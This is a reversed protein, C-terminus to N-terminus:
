LYVYPSEGDAFNNDGDSNHTYLLKVRESTQQDYPAFELVYDSSPSFSLATSFSITNGNIASIKTVGVDSFDPSRVQVDAGVFDRWKRWENVGFPASFSQKIVISTTTGFDVLSAPSFLAYRQSGDFNTDILDVRSSGSLDLQKNSVEFFKARKNRTGDSTSAVSLDTPDFIVIDGAELTVGDGFFVDVSELFEAGRKYRDLLRTGSTTALSVAQLDSRMGKAEITFDKRRKLDSIAQANLTVVRSNFKDELLDEDIQFVVNNFFNKSFSRRLKLKSPDKINTKDLTQINAFPFPAIHIGVSSKTGRPLSYMAAPSYIQQEIFEKANEITEKIYFRLDFGALFTEEIEIHRQVDVDQPTMGVGFPLTAFQSKFSLTASTDTETTLSAGVEIYSGDTTEIIAVIEENTLQNAVESAGITSVFDGAVLGYENSINVGQIFIANSTPGEDTQNFHTAEVGDIWDGNVGDSLMIKLALDIASDELLYFSEVSANDDHSAAIVLPNFSTLAGRVVGTLSTGSIGTYEIFENDIKIFSRLSDSPEILGDTSDLTISTTSSNIAGNLSTEFKELLRLRKKEDPHNITLDVYSPGAVIDVIPGRFIKIYDQPFATDKFGIYLSASTGMPDDLVQTPSILNTVENNVDILRVTISSVSSVSGKDPELQQRITKTSNELSVYTKQGEIDIFGDFNWIDTDFNLGDDFRVLKQIAVATFCYDVGDICFAYTPEINIQELKRRARDSLELTM